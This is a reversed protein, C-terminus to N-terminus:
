RSRMTAPRPARPEEKYWGKPEENRILRKPFLLPFPREKKMVTPLKAMPRAGKKAIGRTLTYPKFDRIRKKTGVKRVTKTISFALICM